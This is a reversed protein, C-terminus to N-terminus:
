TKIPKLSALFETFSPALKVFDPHRWWGSPKSPGGVPDLTDLFWVEGRHDGKIILCVISGGDDYGIPHGIRSTNM